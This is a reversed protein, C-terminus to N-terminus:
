GSYGRRRHEAVDQGRDDRREALVARDVEVAELAERPVEDLVARVPDDDGARCALGRREGVLLADVEEPGRDLRDAVVRGHDGPRPRVRGRVRHVQALARGLEAHVPQQDDRRVVALRRLASDNRVELRDRFRALLRDDDVVDRRADDDVDLGLRDALERLDRGHAGDLLCMVVERLRLV